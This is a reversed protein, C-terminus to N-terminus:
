GYRFGGLKCIKRKREYRRLPHVHLIWIQQSPQDFCTATDCDVFSLGYGFPAHDRWTVWKFTKNGQFIEPVALSLTELNQVNTRWTFYFRQSSVTDGLPAHNRDRPRSFNQPIFRYKTNTRWLYYACCIKRTEFISLMYYTVQVKDLIGSHVPLLIFLYILERRNSGRSSSGWAWDVM